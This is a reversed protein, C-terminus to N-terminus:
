EREDVTEDDTSGAELADLSEPLRHMVLVRTLRYLGYAFAAVLVLDILYLELFVLPTVGELILSGTYVLLGVTLVIIVVPAILILIGIALLLLNDPLDDLPM